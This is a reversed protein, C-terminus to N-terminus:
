GPSGSGIATSRPIPSREPSASKLIQRNFEALHRLRVTQRQATALGARVLGAVMSRTSGYTVLLAEAFGRPDVAPM